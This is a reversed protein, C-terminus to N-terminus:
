AASLLHVWPLVTHVSNYLRRDATWFEAGVRECLALYHADYTAPLEFTKALEIAQKHLGVDGYLVIRLETATSFAAQVEENLLEGHQAYRHLGNSIEYYLLTPAILTAGQASWQAILTEAPLSYVSDVLLPLVFSADLCVSPKESNSM